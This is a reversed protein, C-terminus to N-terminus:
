SRIKDRFEAARQWTTEEEESGCCRQAQVSPMAMACVAKAQLLNLTNEKGGRGSAPDGPVPVRGTHTWLGQYYKKCDYM